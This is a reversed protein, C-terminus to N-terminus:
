IHRNSTINSLWLKLEDCNHIVPYLKARIFVCENDIIPLGDPGIVIDNNPMHYIAIPKGLATVYGLEFNKGRSHVGDMCFILCDCDKLAQLDETAYKKASNKEEHKTWDVIIKHGWREIDKMLYKTLIRNKWSGALYINAM